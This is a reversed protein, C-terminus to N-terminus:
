SALNWQRIARVERSIHSIHTNYNNTEWNIVNYIKFDLKAKKYLQKEVHGLFDSCVNLYRSFLLAKLTISFNKEIIKWFSKIPLFQKLGSLPSKILFSPTNLRIEM